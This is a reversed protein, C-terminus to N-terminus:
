KHFQSEFLLNRYTKMSKNEDQAAQSQLITAHRDNKITQKPMKEHILLNSLLVENVWDIIIKAQLM